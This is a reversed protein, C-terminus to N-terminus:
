HHLGRWAEEHSIFVADPTDREAIIKEWVEDEDIELALEILQFAKTAVPVGDRKAILTLVEEIDEPLSINIRKKSTPMLITM